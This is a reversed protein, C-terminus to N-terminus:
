AGAKAILWAQLGAASLNTPIRLIRTMPFTAYSYLLSLRSGVNFTSALAANAMGGADTKVRWASWSSGDSGDFSRFSIGMGVISSQYIIYQFLTGSSHTYLLRPLTNNVGGIIKIFYFEEASCSVSVRNVNDVASSLYACTQGEAGPIVTQIVAFDNPHALLWSPTAFSVNDAPRTVTTLDDEGPKPMIPSTLFPSEVLEPMICRVTAPAGSSNYVLVKKVVSAPTENEQEVKVYAASNVVPRISTGLGVEVPGGSTVRIHLSCSHKNMNGCAGDFEVYGSPIVLEYVKGSTCIGDLGAATLAASDDIISIIADPSGVILIGSTDVPNVKRCTVKNTAAPEVLVGPYTVDYQDVSGQPTRITNDVTFLPTGDTDTTKWVGGDLRLGPMAPTNAPSQVLTGDYDEVWKTGSDAVIPLNFGNTAYLDYVDYARRGGPRVGAAGVLRGTIKGSVAGM